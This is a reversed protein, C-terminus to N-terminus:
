FFCHKARLETGAAEETPLLRLRQRHTLAPQKGLADSGVLPKHTQPSFVDESKDAKALSNTNAEMLFTPLSGPTTAFAKLVLM